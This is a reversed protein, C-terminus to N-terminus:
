ICICIYILAIVYTRNVKLETCNQLYMYMYINENLQAM